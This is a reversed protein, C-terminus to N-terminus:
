KPFDWGICQTFLWFALVLIGGVIAYGILSTFACGAYDKMSDKEEM